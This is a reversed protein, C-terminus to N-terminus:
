RGRYAEIVEDQSSQPDLEQTAEWQTFEIGIAALERRIDAQDGFIAAAEAPQQENYIRLESM